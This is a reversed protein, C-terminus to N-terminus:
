TIGKERAVDKLRRLEEDWDFTGKFSEAKLRLAEYKESGISDTIWRSFERPFAHFRFHCKACLCQLNDLDTRTASYTRGIIHCCQLSDTRGCHQCAGASRVIKSCLTDCRGKAGTAKKIAM